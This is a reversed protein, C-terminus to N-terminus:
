TFTILHPDVIDLVKVTAGVPFVPVVQLLTQVVDRNFRKGSDIIMMKVAQDLNISEKKKPNYALNEFANAVCCIEAFRFIQGKGERSIPKIPPLNQGQLGIPFGSGDQYEHHQNVIQTEMPTVDASDRILLYGFTPHERYLTQATNPDDSDKIQEIVIKGIDHLFTGLALSMLETKSFRYKRGILIALVTTNIAHDLFYTDVSKIMVTNLFKAGAASIDKMIEEVILRMDYTINVKRLYGKQILETAKTSSLDRFEAQNKIEFIKDSLKARAQMRIEDSIVDEPMVDETGEEMVYVHTYGREVLKEKMMQNIRFGAGLLLKGNIQYISRGLIAEDEFEHVSCLRM